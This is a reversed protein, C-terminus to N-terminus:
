KQAPGYSELPSLHVWLSAYPESRDEAPHQAFAATKSASDQPSVSDQPFVTSEFPGTGVKYPIRAPPQSSDLILM